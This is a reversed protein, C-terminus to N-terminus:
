LARGALLGAASRAGAEATAHPTRNWGCRPTGGPPTAVALLPGARPRTLAAHRRAGRPPPAANRHRHQASRRGVPRHRPNGPGTRPSRAATPWTPCCPSYRATRTAQGWPPRRPTVALPGPVRPPAPPRSQPRGRSRLGAPASGLAGDFSFCIGGEGEADGSRGGVSLFPFAPPPPPPPSPFFPRSPLPLVPLRRCPGPRSAPCGPARPKVRSSLPATGECVPCGSLAESPRSRSRALAGPRPLGPPHCQDM